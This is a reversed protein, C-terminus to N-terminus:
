KLWLVTYTLNKSLEFKFNLKIAADTATLASASDLSASVTLSSPRFFLRVLRTEVMM